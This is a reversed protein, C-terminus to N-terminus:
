AQTNVPRSPSPSPSWQRHGSRIADDHGAPVTWTSAIRQRRRGPSGDGDGDGIVVVIEVVVVVVDVVVDVYTVTLGVVVVLRRRM